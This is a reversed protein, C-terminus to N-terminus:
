YSKLANKFKTSDGSGSNDINKEQMGEFLDAAFLQNQEIDDQRAFYALFSTLKGHHVGIEGMAGAVGAMLQMRM